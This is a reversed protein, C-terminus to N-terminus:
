PLSAEVATAAPGQNGARDFAAVSYQYVVGARAETDIWASRGVEVEAVMRRTEGAAERFVRYGALDPENSPAWLVELGRERPLVALGAPAAPPAVDKVELCVENSAASEVLPDVSAVARVVYCAQRGEPAGADTTRREALPEQALPIHYRETGLRRYLFFGARRVEV